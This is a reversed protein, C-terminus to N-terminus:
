ARRRPLVRSPPRTRCGRLRCSRRDRRRAAAPHRRVRGARVGARPDDPRVGCSTGRIMGNLAPLTLSRHQRDRDSVSGARFAALLYGTFSDFRRLRTEYVWRRMGESPTNKWLPDPPLRVWKVRTLLGSSNWMLKRGTRGRPWVGRRALLVGHQLRVLWGLKPPGPGCGDSPAGIASHPIRFASHPIRIELLFFAARERGNRMGCDMSNLIAPISGAEVLEWSEHGAL